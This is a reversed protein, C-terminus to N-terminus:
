RSLSLAESNEEEQPESRCEVTVRRLRDPSSDATSTAKFPYALQGWLSEPPADATVGYRQPLHTPFYYTGFLMDWIPFIGAFNKDIGEDDSTHHWHHYAPSVLLHQLLGFRWRVNSHLLIVYFYLYPIVFSVAQVSFGLLMIQIVQCARTILDNLPHNRNAASWTMGEASHHIAHIRWLSSTHLFRHTWYDIFDAIILIELCQLWIPQRSIPGYGELFARTLLTSNTNMLAVILLALTVNTCLRTVIPTSLWYALNTLITDRRRATRPYDAAQAPFIAELPIFIVAFVLLSLAVEWLPPVGVVDNLTFFTRTDYQEKREIISLYHPSERTNCIVLILNLACQRRM